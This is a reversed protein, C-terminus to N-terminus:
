PPYTRQSRSNTSMSIPAPGSFRPKVKMWRACGMSSLATSIPATAPELAVPEYHEVTLEVRGSLVFLTEEGDHSELDKVTLPERREVRTVLPIIKKDTLANCLVEYEFNRSRM